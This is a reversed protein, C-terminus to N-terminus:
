EGRLQRLGRNIRQAEPQRFASVVDQTHDDHIRGELDSLKGMRRLRKIQKQSSAVPCYETKSQAM